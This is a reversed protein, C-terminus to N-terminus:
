LKIELVLSFNIGAANLRNIGQMAIKPKLTTSIGAIGTQRLSEWTIYKTNFVNFIGLRLNARDFINLWATLDLTTWSKSAEAFPTKTITGIVPSVKLQKLEDSSKSASHVLNAAVGWVDNPSDYSIGFVLKAPQLTDMVYSTEIFNSSGKDIIKPFKRPRVLSFSFSTKFGNPMYRTIQYWDLSINLDVGATFADQVNKFTQIGTTNGDKDKELYPAILGKYDAVFVSAKIMGIRYDLTIGFEHNIAQEAELRPAKYGKEAVTKALDGPFTISIDYIQQISPMKFGSSAIYALELYHTPKYIIGTSWSFNKYKANRSYKNLSNFNYFDLRLGLLFELYEGVRINDNFASFIHFTDVPELSNNHPRLGSPEKLSYKNPNNTSPIWSISERYGTSKHNFTGYDLGAVLKVDQIVGKLELTKDYKTKLKINTERTGTVDHWAHQGDLRAWCDKTIKKSCHRKDEINDMSINQFDLSLTLNDPMIESVALPTYRYKLGYRTRTHINQRFKLDLYRWSAAGNSNTGKNITGLLKNGLPDLTKDWSPFLDSTMDILDFDQKSYEFTGTLYHEPTLEFGLKFLSSNSNYFMPNPLERTAGWVNQPDLTESHLNHNFENTPTASFPKNAEADKSNAFDVKSVQESYDLDQSSDYYFNITQPKAQWSYPQFERGKRFTNILLIDMNEVLAAAAISTFYRLDKSTYGSKLNLGWNQGKKVIDLAERTVYAVSGGLSGNGAIVSSAGKQLQVAKVNEVEMENIAGGFSGPPDFNGAPAFSQAQSLGDVSISVRNRDVGRMSFGSSTGQGTENISIGPDYKTLDRIDTVMQKSLSNYDKHLKNYDFTQTDEREGSIHIEDNISPSDSSPLDRGQADQGADKTAQDAFKDRAKQDKQKQEEFLKDLANFDVKKEINQKNNQQNNQEAFANLSVFCSFFLSLAMAKKVFFIRRVQKTIFDSLLM